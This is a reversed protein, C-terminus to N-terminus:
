NLLQFVFHDLDIKILFFIILRHEKCFTINKEDNQEGAGRNNEFIKTNLCGVIIVM